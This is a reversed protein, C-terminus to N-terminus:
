PQVTGTIPLLLIKSAPSGSYQGRQLCVVLTQTERPDACEPHEATCMRGPWDLDVLNGIPVDIYVM